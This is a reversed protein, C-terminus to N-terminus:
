SYILYAFKQVHIQPQYDTFYVRLKKGTKSKISTSNGNNGSFFRKKQKM